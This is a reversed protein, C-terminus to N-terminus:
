MIQRYTPAQGNEKQYEIIYQEMSLLREQNLTRM